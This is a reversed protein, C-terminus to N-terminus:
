KVEQASFAFTNAAARFVFVYNTTGAAIAGTTTLPACLWEITPSTGGDAYSISAIQSAVPAVVRLICDAGRGDEDPVTLAIDGAGDTTVTVIEGSRLAVTAATAANTLTYDLVSDTYDNAAALTATGVSDTYNTADDAASSIDSARAFIGPGSPWLVHENPNLEVGNKTVKVGQEDSTRLTLGSNRLEVYHLAGEEAYEGMKIVDPTIDVYDGTDDVDDTGFHIRGARSVGGTTAMAGVQEATVGHPNDTDAVHGDWTGVKAATVGSNVANTQPETLADAKAAFLAAHADADANHASVAEGTHNTAAESAATLATADAKASIRPTLNTADYRAIIDEVDNTTVGGGGGHEDTYLNALRLTENTAAALQNSTVVPIPTGWEAHAAFALAAVAATILTKM